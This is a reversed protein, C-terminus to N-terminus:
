PREDDKRRNAEASYHPQGKERATQVCRPRSDGLGRGAGIRAFADLGGGAGEKLGPVSADGWHAKNTSWPWKRPTNAGGFVLDAVMKVVPKANEGGKLM